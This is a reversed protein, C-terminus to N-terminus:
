VYKAVVKNSDIDDRLASVHGFTQTNTFTVDGVGPNGIAVVEDGAQLPASDPLVPLLVYDVGPRLRRADIDLAM